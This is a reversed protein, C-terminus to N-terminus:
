SGSYLSGSSKLEQELHKLEPRIYFLSRSQCIFNFWPIYNLILLDCMWINSHANMDHAQNLDKVPDNLSFEIM